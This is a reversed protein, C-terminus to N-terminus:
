KQLLYQVQMDAYVRTFIENPDQLEYERKVCIPPVSFSHESFRTMLVEGNYMTSSTFNFVYPIIRRSDECCAKLFTKKIVSCGQRLLYHVCM